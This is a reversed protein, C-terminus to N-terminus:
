FQLAWSSENNNVEMKVSNLVRSLIRDHGLGEKNMSLRIQQTSLLSTKTYTKPVALELHMDREEGGINITIKNKKMEFEHRLCIQLSDIKDDCRLTCRSHQERRKYKIFSM